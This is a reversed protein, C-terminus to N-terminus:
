CLCMRLNKVFITYLTGNGNLTLKDFTSHQSSINPIRPNSYIFKPFIVTQEMSYHFNALQELEKSIYSLIDGHWFLVAKLGFVSNQSLHMKTSQAITYYNWMTVM